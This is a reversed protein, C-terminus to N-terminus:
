VSFSDRLALSILTAQCLNVLHHQGFGLFVHLTCHSDEGSIKKTPFFISMGLLFDERSESNEREKEGMGPSSFEM